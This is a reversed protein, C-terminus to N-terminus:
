RLVIRIVVLIVSLCRAPNVDLMQSESESSAASFMLSVFSSSAAKSSFWRNVLSRTPRADLSEM